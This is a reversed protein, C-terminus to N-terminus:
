ARSALRRRPRDGPRRSRRRMTPTLPPPGRTCSSGRRRPGRCSTVQIFSATKAESLRRAVAELLPALVSQVQADPQELCGIWQIADVPYPRCLDAATGSSAFARGVSPGVTTGDSDAQFDAPGCSAGVIRRHEAADAQGGISGVAGGRIPRPRRAVFCARGLQQVPALRGRHNRDASSLRGVRGDGRAEILRLCGRRCAPAAVLPAAAAPLSQGTRPARRRGGRRHALHAPAHWVDLVAAGHAHRGVGQRRHGAPRHREVHLRSALGFSSLQPTRGM